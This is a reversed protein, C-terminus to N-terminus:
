PVPNQLWLSLVEKEQADLPPWPKPPMGGEDQSLMLAYTGIYSVPPDIGPAPIACYYAGRHCTDSIIGGDGVSCDGSDDYMQLYCLSPAGIGPSGDPNPAANLTGGEGHCRICHAAFIPEVDTAYTPMSPIPHSTSSCAALGCAASLLYIYRSAGNVSM